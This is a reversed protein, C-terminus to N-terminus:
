SCVMLKVIIVHETSLSMMNLLVVAMVNMWEVKAYTWGKDQDLDEKFRTM